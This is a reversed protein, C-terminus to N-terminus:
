VTGTKTVAFIDRIVEEVSVEDIFIDDVPLEELIHAAVSKYQAKDRHM